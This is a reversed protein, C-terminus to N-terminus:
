FKATSLLCRQSGRGLILSFILIFHLMNKLSILWILCEWLFKLKGQTKLFHLTLCFIKNCVSNIFDKFFLHSSHQFLQSKIKIKKVKRITVKARHSLQNGCQRKKIGVGVQYEVPVDRHEKWSLKNPWKCLSRCPETMGKLTTYM